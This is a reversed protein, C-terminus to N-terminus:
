VVDWIKRGLADTHSLLPASDGSHMSRIVVEVKQGVTVNMEGGPGTFEEVPVLGESKYGFDVLVGRDSIGVVTGDVLEGPHFVTQEQEFQELIAGFDIEGTTQQDEKSATDVTPSPTGAEQAPTQNEVSSEENTPEEPVNNVQDAM